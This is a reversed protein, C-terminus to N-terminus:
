HATKGPIHLARFYHNHSPGMPHQLRPHRYRVTLATEVPRLYPPLPRRIPHVLSISWRPSPAESRNPINFRHRFVTLLVQMSQLTHCPNLTTKCTFGGVIEPRAM